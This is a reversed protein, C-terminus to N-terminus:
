TTAEEDAGGGGGGGGSVGSASAAAAAAAWPRRRGFRAAAMSVSGDVDGASGLFRGPLSVTTKGLPVRLRWM